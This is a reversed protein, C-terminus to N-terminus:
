YMSPDCPNEGPNVASVPKLASFLAAFDTAMACLTSFFQARRALRELGEKTICFCTRANILAVLNAVGCRQRGPRLLIM